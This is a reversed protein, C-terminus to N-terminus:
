SRSIQNHFPSDARANVAPGPSELGRQDGSPNCSANRRTAGAPPLIAWTHAIGTPPPSGLCSM